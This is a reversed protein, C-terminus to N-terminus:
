GERDSSNLRLSARLDDDVELDPLVNAMGPNRFFLDRPM